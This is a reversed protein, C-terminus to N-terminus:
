AIVGEDRLESLRSQSVGFERLVEHTDTGIRPAARTTQREFAGFAVPSAYRDESDGSAVLEKFTQYRDWLAGADNLTSAVEDLTRQGFWVALLEAIRHRHEYRADEASFDVGFEQELAAFKDELGTATCLSRWQRPTMACVIVYRGDRTEFDKGFTGYIFNGLRPRPEAVLRAEDLYGLHGAVAVAADALALEILQGEGTARRHLEAALIASVTLMGTTVDWVPLAHNVPGVADEPGTIFPFGTAANVTYDVATRGGTAGSIRVMLLDRRGERLGEYQLWPQEPLNTVFIGCGYILEQVLARGADARLDVAVSRKGRDLGARYLSEGAHLPWRKADIGGGLQEVRVVDAGMSALTAGAIPAAVFAGLELVRLGTLVNATGDVATDPTV